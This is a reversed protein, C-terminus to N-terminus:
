ERRAGQRHITGSDVVQGTRSISQFYMDDGAIEIAMFSRDRDFYAATQDTPNMNGERLQGGAGSVFYAIGKQPKLREYVHDHGSFVVNVGYKVFIPELVVRLDVSAGHREANSYLPHHFYCIKWDERADRLTADLWDLQRRDVLTSDLALFRVNHRTYSYFRQGNMNFPKYNVQDPRDHNGLSAQFTVGAALLPAYPQEFKKVFDAPRQSGYMNDGLMIVLDFPFTGHLKAMQQAVEYQPREGTGNDGMALLKLSDPRNPLATQAGAAVAAAILLVALAALRRHVPAVPV